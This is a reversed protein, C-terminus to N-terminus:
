LIPFLQNNQQPTLPQNYSLNRTVPANNLKHQNNLSCPQVQHPNIIEYHSM